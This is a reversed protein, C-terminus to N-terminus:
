SRGGGLAWQIKKTFFRFLWAETEYILSIIWLPMTELTYEGNAIYGDFDATM